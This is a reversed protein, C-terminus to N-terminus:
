REDGRPEIARWISEDVNKGARLGFAWGRVLPPADRQIALAFDKQTGEFGGCKEMWKTAEALLKDFVDQLEARVEEVWDYLEDPVQDLLQDVTNDKLARWM